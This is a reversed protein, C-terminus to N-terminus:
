QQICDGDIFVLYEGKTAVVAKNLIRTKQWGNDEQWVHNIPFFYNSKIRNLEEVIEPRSGDDAIVVEFDRFTQRELAAFIYKLLDIKNYFSIILSVHHSM